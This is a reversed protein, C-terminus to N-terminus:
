GGLGRHRPEGNYPPFHNINLIVSSHQVNPRATNCFTQSTFGTKRLIRHIFTKFTDHSMNPTLNENTANNFM